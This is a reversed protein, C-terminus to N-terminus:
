GTKEVILACGPKQPKGFYAEFNGVRSRDPQLEDLLAIIEENSKYHQYHHSGYLDFTNLVTQRYLRKMRQIFSEGKIKPLRGTLSFRFKNLLYGLLPVLRLAGVIRSYILIAGFPLRKLIGRIPRYVLNARIWNIPGGKRAKYCNFAFFGGPAAIRYLSRATKEVSETHQIVNHCIVLDRISNERIPPADISCQVVDFNPWKELDINREVVDDVSHSLELLIVREAGSELMWLSQAGSGGGADVIIKGKFYDTTGFTNAVTHNLWNQKFEDFNFHNWQDGFSRVSEYLESNVFRPIGRVIPYSSGEESVLQGSVIRGNETKADELRLTSGTIPDCLYNLLEPNM